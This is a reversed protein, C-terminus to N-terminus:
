LTYVTAKYHKINTPDTFWDITKKLGQTLSYHPRWNLEKRAKTNDACLRNVESKIPRQRLKETQLRLPLKLIKAILHALDNVSIEYNSGLNFIQGLAQKSEAAAIFGNVTDQMYTLDRTPTLSGLKVSKSHALLQTIITPVIARASQRPGYTNFPRVLTVPLDFSRHFSLALFDASAKTAAYPSQPNIPHQEAIPISQATGYVESTSTHIVKEVELERAAQLINLTGKINTEVYSNPSYYSYPIGILAALHFVIQSNQM